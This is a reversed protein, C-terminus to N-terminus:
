ALKNTQKVEKSRLTQDPFHYLKERGFLVSFGFCMTSPLYLVGSINTREELSFSDQESEIALPLNHQVTCMFLASICYLIQVIDSQLVIKDFYIYNM